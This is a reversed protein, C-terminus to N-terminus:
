KGEKVKALAAEYAREAQEQCAPDRLAYLRHFGTVLPERAAAIAADLAANHANAVNQNGGSQWVESVYAATWEGTPKPEEIEGPFDPIAGFIDNPTASKPEQDSM